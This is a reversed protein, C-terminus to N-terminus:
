SKPSVQHRFIHRLKGELRPNRGPQPKGRFIPTIIKLGRGKHIHGALATCELHSHHKTFRARVAPDDIATPRPRRAAKDHKPNGLGREAPSKAYTTM